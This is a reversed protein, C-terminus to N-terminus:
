DTPTAPPTPIGTDPPRGPGSPTSGAPARVALVLEKGAIAAFVGPAQEGEVSIVVQVTSSGVTLARDAGGAVLQVVAAQVVVTVVESAATTQEGAGPEPTLAGGPSSNAPASNGPTADLAYVDVLQGRQLSPPVYGAAIPLAIDVMSSTEALVSRPLLEGSRVPSSLVRGTPDTSSLLYAEASNALGVTVARLDGAVLVTGAALDSEAAWVQDSSEAGTVVRAGVIVSVLVLLIGAVLRINLWSPTRLRRPVPSPSPSGTSTPGAKASGSIHVM